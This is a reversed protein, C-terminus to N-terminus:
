VGSTYHAVIHAATLNASTVTRQIMGAADADYFNLESVRAAAAM